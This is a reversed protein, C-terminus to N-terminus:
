TLQHLRLEHRLANLPHEEAIVEALRFSALWLLRAPGRRRAVHDLLRLTAHDSWHLDETVLLLTRQQTFRDLWEGFERLMREQGIGTLERRLAEREADSALWPLQLLWTPAVSRLLATASADDRCLGALAELIPLYPEGAGHQEVCQGHAITAQSALDAVLHEILTTKGIGAEGTLWLLQRRGASAAHWAAQLQDRVAARGILASSQPLATAATTPSPTEGAGAPARMAQEPRALALMEGDVRALAGTAQVPAIFRYGRRSATEIFRPQKADDGLAARLESVITKLVSESVHRHGWVADLLEDKRVLQGPARALACLVEFAKPAVALPQGDRTLRAQREDLEFPHFRLLLPEDPPVSPNQRLAGRLVWDLGFASRKRVVERAASGVSGVVGVGRSAGRLVAM